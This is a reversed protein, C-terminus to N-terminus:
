RATPAVRWIAGNGDESVLLAGDAAVTVGVPRGWVADDGVVFGTLFDDYEGTPAGDRLRVRVVKYGTRHDRNWSGHLTVFADGAYDAPFAAAAGKAAEYFAIGLPASHPQILVDPVTVKGALDPRADQHRPDPHNGMYYWPWGYFAGPKVRTVYDPPLNDGLGDRENTACWLTGSGPGIGPGIGPQVALGACNRIGTAVIGRNGGDPDFRLVDARDAETGWTAGLPKESTWRDLGGPPKDAVDRAVNSASGVSVYLTKGDPSFAIDRTWHGGKEETLKRVVMEAGGRAKRDGGRYPFRVVSNTNAVYVWRPDPGPPYFAIGYPRDLGTAFTETSPAAAAGSPASLVKIDGSASEAVFIDGNPATRLVRPGDLGAAFRTVTFGAPAKPVANPPPAVVGPADSHSRSAYPAPFDEPTLRRRVGPESTRWDGFAAKGTLLPPEDAGPEAAGATGAALLIMATLVAGKVMLGTVGGEGSRLADRM